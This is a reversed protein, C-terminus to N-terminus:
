VDGGQSAEILEVTIDGGHREMVLRDNDVVLDGNKDRVNADVWGGSICYETPSFVPEGDCFVNIKGFWFPIFFPSESNVALRDPIKTEKIDNM